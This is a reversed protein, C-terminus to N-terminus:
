NTARGAPSKCTTGVSVDRTTAKLIPELRIVHGSGVVAFVREGRRTLDILTRAMHEGRVTRSDDAIQGLYTRKPEENLTRWDRRETFDRQWLTDVAALDPLSERLGNVDTRKALLERALRDNAKGGAESWYVRTFFFLAVQEASWRRLLAAVEDEYRPELSILRVGDRWALQHVLRSETVPGFRFLPGVFYRRQRGEYLAVTPRFERWLREIEVLQLDDRNSTHRAGFFILHRFRLVYPNGHARLIRDHEDWTRLRAPLPVTSGQYAPAAPSCSLWFVAAVGTAALCLAALIRRM